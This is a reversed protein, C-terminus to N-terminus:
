VTIRIFSWQWSGRGLDWENDWTCAPEDSRCYTHCVIKDNGLYMTLHAYRGTAPSFYAILDGPSLQAILSDDTTKEGIFVAYPDKGPRKNRWIPDNSTLYEVMTSVRVIAYPANPPIGAQRHKLPLGGAKEGGPPEGICCSLFHTCDDLESWDITSGDPLLAHESGLSDGDADFDHVFQTGVPVKKFGDPGSSGIFAVGDEDPVQNWYKRAYALAAQRDYNVAPQLPQASDSLGLAKLTNPGVLGDVGLGNQEQFAIVAAETEQGFRGDVSINFGANNLAQQVNEIEQGRDGRRFIM